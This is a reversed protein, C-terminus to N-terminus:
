NKPKLSTDRDIVMSEWYTIQGMFKFETKGKPTM